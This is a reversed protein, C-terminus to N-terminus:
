VFLSMYEFQESNQFTCYKFILGTTIAVIYFSQFHVSCLNVHAVINEFM